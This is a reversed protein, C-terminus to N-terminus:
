VVCIDLYYDVLIYVKFFARSSHEIHVYLPLLLCPAQKTVLLATCMLGVDEAKCWYDLGLHASVM